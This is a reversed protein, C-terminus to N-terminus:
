KWFLDKLVVEFDFENRVDIKRPLGTFRGVGVKGFILRLFDIVFKSTTQFVMSFAAINEM